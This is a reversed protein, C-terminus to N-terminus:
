VNCKKKGGFDNSATKSKLKLDHMKVSFYKKESNNQVKRIFFLNNLDKESYYNGKCNKERSSLEYGLFKKPATDFGIRFCALRLNYSERQLFFVYYSM